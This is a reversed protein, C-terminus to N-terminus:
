SRYAANIQVYKYTLDCGWAQGTADGVHLDVDLVVKDGAMTAQVQGEDFDTGLGAAVVAIGNIAVDVAHM